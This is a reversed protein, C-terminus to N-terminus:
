STALSAPAPIAPPASSTLTPVGSRTAEQIATHVRSLQLPKTLRISFGNARAEEATVDPVSTPLLLEIGAAVDAHADAAPLAPGPSRDTVLSWSDGGVFPGLHKFPEMAAGGVLGGAGAEAEGDGSLDGLTV